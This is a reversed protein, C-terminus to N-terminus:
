SGHILLRSFCASNCKRRETKMNAFRDDTVNLSGTLWKQFATSAGNLLGLPTLKDEGEPISNLLTGKTVTKRLKCLGQSLPRCFTHYEHLTETTSLAPSPTAFGSGPPNADFSSREGMELDEVPRQPSRSIRTRAATPPHLSSAM